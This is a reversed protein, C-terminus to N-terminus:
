ILTITYNDYDAHTEWGSDEYRRLLEDIVGEGLGEELTIQITQREKYEESIKKDIEKELLDTINIEGLEISLRQDGDGKYVQDKKIAMELGGM